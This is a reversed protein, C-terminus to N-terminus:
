GEPEAEDDAAPAAESSALLEAARNSVRSRAERQVLLWMAEDVSPATEFQRTLGSMDFARRVDKSWSCLVLSGKLGQLSKLTTLLVRICTGSIHETTSFDVILRRDGRDLSEQVKSQLESSSSADLRGVPRLVTVENVQECAIEM